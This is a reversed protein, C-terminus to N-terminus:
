VRNFVGLSGAKIECEHVFAQPQRVFFTRALVVL